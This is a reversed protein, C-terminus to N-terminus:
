LSVELDAIVKSAVEFDDFHTKVGNIEQYDEHGKGAILVLDGSKALHIAKSIAKERNEEIEYKGDTESIGIVIQSIIFGPEETRPNDSTIVTYDSYKGAVRGMGFRREHSRDGGCGFVTIIRGDVYPRMAELVSQLSAENHAYDVLCSIGLKNTVSQVRGPVSTNELSKKVIDFSVGLIGAVSIALLANYVNFEGQMAVSVEGEYWPSKLMFKSGANGNVVARQIDSACVDSSASFGYTVVKCGSKTASAYVRDAENCDSNVVAYESVDFIMMKCKFYDEMDPHDNPGIHDEFFNTFCSVKYNIGHVRKQKLGHSSVEMVCAKTDCKDMEDITNYLAAMPLTTNTTERKEGNVYNCVTGLLGSKIGANKLIDYIMFTATTKGKTGTVGIFDINKQPEGLSKAYLEASIASNDDCAIITVSSGALSVLEERTLLTNNKDVVICSAGNDIASKVYKHGDNNVGIVAVFLDGNKVAKSNTTVANVSVDLSGCLLEYDISGLLETLKFAM